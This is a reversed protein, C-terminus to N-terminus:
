KNFAFTIITFDVTFLIPVTVKGEKEKGMKKGM